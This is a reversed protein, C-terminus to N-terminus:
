TEPYIGIVGSMAFEGSLDKCHQDTRLVQAEQPLVPPKYVYVLCNIGAM